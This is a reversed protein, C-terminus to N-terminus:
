LKPLEIRVVYFSQPEMALVLKGGKLKVTGAQPVVVNPTEISNYADRNASSLKQYSAASKITSGSVNATFEAPM